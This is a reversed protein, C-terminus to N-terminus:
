LGFKGFGNSEENCSAKVKGGSSVICWQWSERSAKERVLGPSSNLSYVTTAGEPKM